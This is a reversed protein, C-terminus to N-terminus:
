SMSFLLAQVIGSELTVAATEPQDRIEVVQRTMEDDFGCNRRKGTKCMTAGYRGVAFGAIATPQQDFERRGKKSGNSLLQAEHQGFPEGCARNEQTV